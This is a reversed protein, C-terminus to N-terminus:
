VAPEKDNGPQCEMTLYMTDERVPMFGMAAYWKVPGGHKLVQLRIPKNARISESRLKEILNRGIGRSRYKPLLAIDVLAISDASRDVVLHGISVGNLLVVSFEAAPYQAAYGRRMAHFQMGLFASIQQADWGTSAMEAARTSAYLELM